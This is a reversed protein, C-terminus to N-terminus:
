RLDQEPTDTLAADGNSPDAPSTTPRYAHYSRGWRRRVNRMGDPLQAQYLQRALLAYDLPISERHLLSVIHRLREALSARTTATGM